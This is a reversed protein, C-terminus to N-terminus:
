ALNYGRLQWGVAPYARLDVWHCNSLVGFGPLVSTPWGLLAVTGYKTTAGHSVAVVTGGPALDAADRLAGSARKGLDDAEEVGCGDIVQGARWRAYEAPHREAAEPNTLGQWDGFSRERLRPDYRVTLGTVAALAAATDVARRLDSSVIVDPKLEVLRAAAAAAQAVGTPNLEVDLQGQIRNDVNWTTQGHRWVILRTVSM